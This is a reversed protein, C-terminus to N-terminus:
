QQTEAGSESSSSTMEESQEDMQMEQYYKKIHYRIRQIFEKGLM